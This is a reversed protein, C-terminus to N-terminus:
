DEGPGGAALATRVQEIAEEPTAAHTVQARKRARDLDPGLSDKPDYGLLIVRKDHKVALVIESLTGLAGPCAVVVDSSMVNFLNRGDGMGTLIAVDIHPSAKTATTDPLIGVVLSGPVEKAGAASAAMVGCNRGGNLLIWGNEAILRGLRRAMETTHANAKSGGMVGIIPKRM